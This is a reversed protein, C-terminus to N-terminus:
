GEHINRALTVVALIAVADRMGFESNLIGLQQNSIAGVGLDQGV